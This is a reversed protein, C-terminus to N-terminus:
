TGNFLLHSTDSTLIVPSYVQLRKNQQLKRLVDVLMLDPIPLCSCPSSDSTMGRHVIIKQHWVLDDYNSIKLTWSKDKKKLNGQKLNNNKTQGGKTM